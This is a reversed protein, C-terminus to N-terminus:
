PSGVCGADYPPSDLHEKLTACYAPEDDIYHRKYDQPSWTWLLDICGDNQLANLPLKTFGEGKLFAQIAQANEASGRDGFPLRIAKVPREVCAEQYCADILVETKLIEEYCVPLHTQSFYPHSYSHNGLLFGKQIARILSERHNAMFEGRCFFIAPIDQAVLYDVKENTYQSPSDDITLYLRHGM